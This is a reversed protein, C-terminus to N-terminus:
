GEWGCVGSSCVASATPSCDGSTDFEIACGYGVAEDWMDFFYSTDYNYNGIIDDTSCGVGTGYLIQSCESNSTCETALIVEVDIMKQYDWCSYGSATPTHESGSFASGSSCVPVLALALAAITSPQFM